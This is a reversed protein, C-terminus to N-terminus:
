RDFEDLWPVVMDPDEIAAADLFDSWGVPVFHPVDIVVPFDLDDDLASDLLEFLRDFSTGVSSSSARPAIHTGTSRSDLSTLLRLARVVDDPYQEPHTLVGTVYARTLGDADMSRSGAVAAVGAAGSIQNM